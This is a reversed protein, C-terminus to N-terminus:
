RFEFRSKSPQTVSVPDSAPFSDILGEELQQDIRRNNARDIDTVSMAFDKNVRKIQWQVYEIIDGFEAEIDNASIGETKAMELCKCVLAKALRTDGKAQYGEAHIHSQVWLDVFTRVKDGLTGEM